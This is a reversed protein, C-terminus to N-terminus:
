RSSNVNETNKQTHTKTQLWAVLVSGIAKACNSIIYSPVTLNHQTLPYKVGFHLDTM